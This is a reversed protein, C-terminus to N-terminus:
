PKLGVATGDLKWEPQLPIGLHRLATAAVDVQYTQIQQANVEAAPGSVVLFTRRIDPNSHGGGHDTGAGGHDTCILVLWDEQPFSRRSEVAAMVQGIHADVREIAAIYEPVSPHFGFAHGAEDVQGLYLFVLDSDVERVHSACAMALEADKVIYEEAGGAPLNVTHDSGGLIKEAIPGWDSFSATKLRPQASKARVFFHPFHQYDAGVFKNDTVGHKNPWVGTLLNSWGPGSVTNAADTRRPSLIETGEFRTGHEVMLGIVPTKAAVVADHRCGDIGIILVKKRPAAPAEEGHSAPVWMGTTLLVIVILGSTRNMSPM